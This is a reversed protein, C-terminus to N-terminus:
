VVRQILECLIDIAGVLLDPLEQTLIKIAEEAAETRFTIETVPLDGKILARGLPVADSAREIKVVPVVGFEYIKKLVNNM